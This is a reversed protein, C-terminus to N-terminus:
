ISLFTSQDMSFSIFTIRLIMRELFIRDLKLMNKRWQIVFIKSPTKQYIKWTNLKSSSPTYSIKVKTLTSNEFMQRLDKFSNQFHKVSQSFSTDLLAQAIAITLLEFLQLENVDIFWLSRELFIGLHWTDLLRSKRNMKLSFKVIGKQYSTFINQSMEKLYLKLKLCLTRLKLIDKYVTKFTKTEKLSINIRTLFRRLCTDSLKCEYLLLFWQWFSKWIKKLIM